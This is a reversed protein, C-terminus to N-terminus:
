ALIVAMLLIVLIIILVTICWGSKTDTPSHSGDACHHHRLVLDLMGETDRMFKRMRRMAGDLKSDSRDVNREVDDLM